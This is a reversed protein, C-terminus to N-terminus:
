AAKDSSSCEGKGMSSCGCASELEELRRQAEEKKLGYTEQLKGLFKDRNGSAMAIDDDTLRGWTEKIKGKLQEAKGQMTDKNM